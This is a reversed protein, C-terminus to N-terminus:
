QKKGTEGAQRAQWFGLKVGNRPTLVTDSKLFDEDETWSKEMRGFRQLIRVVTYGIETLASQQQLYDALM